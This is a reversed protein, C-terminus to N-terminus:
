AHRWFGLAVALWGVTLVASFLLSTICRWRNGVPPVATADVRSLAVGATVLAVPAMPPIFLALMALQSATMSLPNDGYLRWHKELAAESVELRFFLKNGTDVLVVFWSVLNVVAMVAAWEVNDAAWLAAWAFALLLLAIRSFTVGKFFAFGHLTQLALLGVVVGDGPSSVSRWTGVTALAWVVSMVLALFALGERRGLQSQRWTELWNVDPRQACSVCYIVGHVPRECARCVFAGCRACTVTAEVALHQACVGM